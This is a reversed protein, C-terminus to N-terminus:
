KSLLKPWNQNAKEINEPINLKWLKEAFWGNNLYLKGEVIKWNNPSIDATHGKSVAYACYGGYQPAYKQPDAVFLDRNAPSSFYWKAGMWEHSFQSLGKVPKGETFYAAPDYGKLAVGSSNKNIPVTAYAYNSTSLPSLLLALMVAVALCGAQVLHIKILRTSRMPSDEQNSKQFTAMGDSPIAGTTDSFRM